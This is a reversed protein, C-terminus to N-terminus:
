FYGLLAHVGDTAISSPVGLEIGPNDRFTALYSRPALGGAAPPQRAQRLGQLYGELLSQSFSLVRQNYGYIRTRRSSYSYPDIETGPPAALPAANVSAALAEYDEDKAAHLRASAGARLDRGFFLRGAEDRVLIADINWELGNAAELEDEGSPTFAVRGPENRWAVTEFQTRTRSHLWGSTLAQTDTWDITGGQFCDDGPWVPFVATDPSFRIGGSPSLGAYLAIRNFSVAHNTGQDLITMSRLRSQIGFGDAILAYGFLAMSTVFAIFPITVLLLYLQKRRLVVFYNVPGIIVTFISILVVFAIVPVAGVGPILFEFFGAHRQRTSTGLRARWNLRPWGGADNLWWTWDTMSGPFPNGPFAFVRGALLPIHSFAERTAGWPVERPMGEPGQGAMAGTMPAVISARRNGPSAPQWARSAAPRDALDLLRALDKSEEGPMGTETVLLTGGAETWQIIAARTAPPLKDLTALPLAVIDLPTYDIWSEPLMAPALVQFDGSRAGGYAIGSSAAGAASAQVAAEFHACDILAPSYHVVLLSAQDANNFDIDPLSIRQSLQDLERGKDFVYLTGGSGPAVLPVPLSFQQTANQGVAVRREVTPLRSGNQGADVFRFTLTRPKAMNTVRIRIPYYGGHTGGAWRWDVMLALDHARRSSENSAAGATRVGALLVLCVLFAAWSAFRSM